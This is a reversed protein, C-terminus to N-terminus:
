RERSRNLVRLVERVAAEIIAQRDEGSHATREGTSPLEDDKQAIARIVLEKIEIPM